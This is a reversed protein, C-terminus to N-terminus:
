IQVLKRVVPIKKLLLSIGLSIIMLLLAYLLDPLLYNSLELKKYYTTLWFGVPIHIFYIGLTNLGIVRSLDILKQNTLRIKSCLIFVSFAMVMTMITNHGKWVTDFKVGTRHVKMVGFLFLLVLSVVLCTWLVSAKIHMAQSHKALLGGCIFYVLTYAYWINFPNFWLVYKMRLAKLTNSNLLYGLTDVVEDALEYGFTCIFIVAVMYTIYTKGPMDYLAKVFPFLLYIYIMAIMFWLHQTRGPVLSYIAIVFERLNYHDNFLPALTLLTIAGWFVFLIFFSKARHLIKQLPYEKNLLFSGNAMLFIPVGISSIGQLFYNFYVHMAPNVLVDVEMTGFHSLCILYSAICKVIDYYYIRENKM